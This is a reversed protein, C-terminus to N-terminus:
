EDLEMEERRQKRVKLVVVVAVAAVAVGLASGWVIPKALFSLVKAVFGQEETHPFGEDPGPVWENGWDGNMDYNVVNIDYTEVREVPEMMDNDYTIVIRVQQPGEAIPFFSGDYFDHSGPQFNGFIVESNQADIGEGELKIKLNRLIVAGRNQVTFGVYQSQNVGVEMPMYVDGIELNANQQVNIGVEEVASLPNGEADEYEFKITLIYNKPQADPVTYMRLHQTTQGKPVISDIYFTNSSGVPTFVNGKETETGIVSVSVKINHVSKAIHTNMYTLDLNFEKGAMVILPDVVYNSVIIKPQSRNQNEDDNEPNSISVGAYQVFSDTAKGGTMEAGTEYDVTFGINHNQSMAAATAAFTFSLVKSEGPALNNIVQINATRPVIGAEPAASVKVNKAAVDGNNKVTAQIVIDQGVGYTGSPKTLSSIELVARKDGDADAGQAQVSIYYPFSEKVTEGNKGLWSLELMVAYSGTRMKRNATMTYTVAQKANAAVTGLSQSTTANSVTIGEADLGTLLVRVGNVAQASPNKVQATLTFTDGAMVKGPTVTFDEMTMNADTGSVTGQIKVFIEGTGTFTRQTNNQYTYDFQVVYDGATLSKDPTINIKFAKSQNGSISFPRMEEVTIKFDKNAVPFIRVNSAAHTTVNGLTVSIDRAQGAEATVYSSPLTMRLEPMQESPPASPQTSGDDLVDISIISTETKLTSTSDRYTVQMNVQNGTTGAFLKDAAIQIRMNVTAGANVTTAALSEVGVFISGAGAEVQLETITGGSSNRIQVDFSTPAEPKVTFSSTTMHVMSLATVPAVSSLVTFLGMLIAMGIKKM